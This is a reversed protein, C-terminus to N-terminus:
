QDVKMAGAATSVVDSFRLHIDCSEHATEALVDTLRAKDDSGL